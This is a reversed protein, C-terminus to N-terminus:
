SVRKIVGIVAVVIMLEVLTFAGAWALRTSDSIKKSSILKM